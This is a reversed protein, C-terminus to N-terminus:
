YFTFSHSADAHSRTQTSSGVLSFSCFHRQRLFNLYGKVNSWSHRKSLAHTVVVPLKRERERKGRFGAFLSVASHTYSYFECWASSQNRTVYTYTVYIETKRVSDIFSHSKDPIRVASGVLFCSLFILESFVSVFISEFVYCAITM